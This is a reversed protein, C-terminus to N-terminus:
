YNLIPPLPPPPLPGRGSKFKLARWQFEIIAISYNELTGELSETAKEWHKTTFKTFYYQLWLNTIIYMLSAFQLECIHSVVYSIIITYNTNVQM